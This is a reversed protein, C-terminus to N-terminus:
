GVRQASRLMVLNGIATATTTGFDLVIPGGRVLRQITADCLLEAFNSPDVRHGSLRRGLQLGGVAACGNANRDHKMELNSIFCSRFSTM